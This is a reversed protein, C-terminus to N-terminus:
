IALEAWVRLYGDREAGWRQAVQEVVALGMGGPRSPDLGRRVPDVGSRGIDLVTIRLCGPSCDAWLEFDDDAACGSHLVANTTLESAVLMADERVPAIEALEALAERARRPASPM